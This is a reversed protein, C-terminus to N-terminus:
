FNSFSMVGAVPHYINQLPNKQLYAVTKSQESLIPIEGPGQYGQPRLTITYVITILSGPKLGSASRHVQVVTAVAYISQQGEESGPEIDVRSVEIELYEPAAKQKAEYVSPPLEAEVGCISLFLFVVLSGAKALMRGENAWIKM